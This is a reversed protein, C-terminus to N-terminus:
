LWGRQAAIVGAQFRNTAGLRIHLASVRRRMTRLSLGLRRAIAEDKLGAAMLALLSRDESSVEDDDGQLPVSQRWCLEFFDVLADLLASPRVVVASVDSMDFSLPLLALRRDTIALKVRLGPLVRAQEGRRALDQIELLTGGELAEPAYVGRYRVGRALATDEAPNSPAQAYPPLVLGLVEERAEQQLRVFWRLLADRGRVIEIQETGDPHATVALRSLEGVAARVQDLEGARSRILAEVAIHPDIAAYRHPRGALRDVLGHARLRNLARTVRKQSCGVDTAVTSPGATHRALLARYVSEDFSDVGAAGLLNIM